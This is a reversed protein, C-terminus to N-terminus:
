AFSTRHCSRHEFRYKTDIEYIDSLGTVPHMVDIILM